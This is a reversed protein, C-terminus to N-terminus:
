CDVLAPLNDDNDSDDTCADPSIIVADPSIIVQVINEDDNDDDILIEHAEAPVITPYKWLAELLIILDLEEGTDV